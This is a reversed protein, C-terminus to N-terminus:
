KYLRHAAWLVFHTGYYLSIDSSSLTPGPQELVTTNTVEGWCNQSCHRITSPDGPTSTQQEPGDTEKDTEYDAHINMHRATQENSIFYTQDKLMAHGGIQYSHTIIHIFIVSQVCGSGKKDGPQDDGPPKREKWREILM